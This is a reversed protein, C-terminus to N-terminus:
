DFLKYWESGHFHSKEHHRKALLCFKDDYFQNFIYSNKLFSKFRPVFCAVWFLTTQEQIRMTNSIIQKYFYKQEDDLVISRDILQFLSTYVLFYSLILDSSENNYVNLTEDFVEGLEEEDVHKGKWNNNLYYEFKKVLYEFVQNGSLKPENEGLTLELASFKNEKLNLLAYFSSSFVAFKSEYQQADHTAQALELQEKTSEAAQELQIRALEKANNIQLDNAERAQDLQQKLAQRAQRLQKATADRAQQLQNAMADRADKNAQRQLLTAYVVFALTASTFLTNLSGYIDGLTGFDELKTKESGIEIMLWKFFLPFMGWGIILLIFAVLGLVFKQLTTLGM